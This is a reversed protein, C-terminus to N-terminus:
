RKRRSAKLPIQLAMKKNHNCCLILLLVPVVPFTYFFFRFIDDWASLLLGSGFNYCLVGLVVLLKTWDLRRKLNVKALIFAILILHQVGLYMFVAGFHRSATDSYTKLLKIIAANPTQTIGQDNPCVRPYVYGTPAKSLFVLRGALQTFSNLATKPSAKICRLMFTLVKGTGYQEIVDLNTDRHFKVSNFSDTEFETELVEKPTVQYVFSLTEEDLLEPHAVAVADILTMPMGLMEIQRKDPAEVKLISYMPFKVAAFLLMISMLLALARKRSLCLAVGLIVPVTFLIGNHRFVSALVAVVAFCTMNLPRHLWKGKTVVAQLSYTALLLTCIAFGTDKWPHMSTLMVLPSLVTLLVTVIAPLFGFYKRIVQGTYGLVGSFCLSQFLVVSGIWGGTLTLPLKFALLTHLVPHWDNYRNEMAQVYQDFSDVSFGGPYCAIYYVLFVALPILYFCSNVLVKKYVVSKDKQLRPHAHLKGLLWLATPCGVAALLVTGLCLLAFKQQSYRISCFAQVLIAFTTYLMLVLNNVSGFRRGFKQIFQKM